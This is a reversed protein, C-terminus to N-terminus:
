GLIARTLRDIGPRPDFGSTALACQHFLVGDLYAMLITCEQEGGSVNALLPLAWAVLERRGARLVDQIPENSAAEVFLAYRALTRTRGAGLSFHVLAVFGDVVQEVTEPAPLQGLRQWDLTDHTVLREVVGAVLADRTRFYNSTSGPPLEATEDVARHTLGRLGRTGLVDIAADLARERNTVM